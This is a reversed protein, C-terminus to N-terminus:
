CTRDGDRCINCLAAVTEGLASASFGRTRTEVGIAIPGQPGSDPAILAEFFPLPLNEIAEYGLDELANIATTRGAGSLGTVILVRPALHGSTATSADDRTESPPDRGNQGTDASAGHTRGVTKPDGPEATGPRMSPQDTLEPM